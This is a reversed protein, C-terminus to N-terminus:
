HVVLPMPPSPLGVSQSTGTKHMQIPGIDNTDSLSDIRNAISLANPWDLHCRLHRWQRTGSTCECTRMSGNNKMYKILLWRDVKWRVRNMVYFGFVYQLMSEGRSKLAFWLPILPFFCVCVCVYMCLCDVRGCTFCVCTCRFFLPLSSLPVVLFNQNRKQKKEDVQGDIVLALLLLGFAFSFSNNCSLLRNNNLQRSLHASLSFWSLWMNM